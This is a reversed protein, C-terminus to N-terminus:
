KNLIKRNNSSIIRNIIKTTSHLTQLRISKVIGGHSEVYERGAINSIRWDGGKVLFDPKILRILKLPTLEGFPVVYDVPKLRDLVYARFSENNVPRSSGKLNRVSSDSNLGVILIDGLKKAKELYNLHGPHILDFCGNTFVIRKGERKFNRIILSLRKKSRVIM